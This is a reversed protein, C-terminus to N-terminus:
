GFKDKSTNVMVNGWSVYGNDNETVIRWKATFERSATYNVGIVLTDNVVGESLISM